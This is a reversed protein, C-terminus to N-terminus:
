AHKVHPCCLCLSEAETFLQRGSYEGKFKPGFLAGTRRAHFWVVIGSVFVVREKKRYAFSMITKIGVYNVKDGLVATRTQTLECEEEQYEDM